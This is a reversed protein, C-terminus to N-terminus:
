DLHLTFMRNPFCVCIELHGPMLVEERRKFKQRGPRHKSKLWYRVGANMASKTIRSQRQYRPRKPGKQYNKNSSETTCSVPRPAAFDIQISLRKEQGVLAEVLLDVIRYESRLKACPQDVGCGLPEQVQGLAGRRRADIGRWTLALPFM